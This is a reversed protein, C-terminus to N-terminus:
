AAPAEKEGKLKADARGHEAAAHEIEANCEAGILLALGTIYFWLMLVIVAGLSGYTASYSNFFHLYVRFGASALVWLGVGILSGPTIWYWKQDEVDPAWFYLVAFGLVVFFLAIPWQVFRWAVAATGLGHAAVWTAAATGFLVIGLASLMLASLTVTLIPAIILRAKWFPRREKVHYAFNLVTMLSSIGASASWLAGLLGVIVKWGGAARATETITKQIVGWAEPPLASAAYRFLTQQVEPHKGAVLGLVTMLLLLGPFVALFFYFALEAARGFTDDHESDMSTWLRKGLQWWTLGGLEWASPSETSRRPVKEKPIETVVKAM